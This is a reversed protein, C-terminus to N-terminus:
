GRLVEIHEPSNSLNELRSDFTLFKMRSAKALALLYVDNVQRHGLIQAFSGSMESAGPSLLADIYCHRSDSLMEKLLAVAQAPNSAPSVAAPNSSLRVFALETLACTAWEEGQALRRLATAHFQHNPWALALLVNVDLLLPKSSVKKM